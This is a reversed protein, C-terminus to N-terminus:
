PLYPKGHEFTKLRERLAAKLDPETGSEELFAIAQSTMKSADEFRSVAGYAVALTALVSANAHRTLKAAKEALEVVRPHTRRAPDNHTALLWAVNNIALVHFRNQLITSEFHELATDLEGRKAACIGLQYHAEANTEEEQLVQLLEVEAAELDNQSALIAGLALRAKTFDEQLELARRFYREAGQADSLQISIGQQYFVSAEIRGGLNRMEELPAEFDSGYDVWLDEVTGFSSAVWSSAVVHAIRFQRNEYSNGVAELRLTMLAPTPSGSNLAEAIAHAIVRETRSNRKVYGFLDKDCDPSLLLFASDTDPDSFDYNYYTGPVVFVRVEAEKANGELIDDWTSTGTRVFADWDIGLTGSEEVACVFREAGSRFHVYFGHIGLDLMQAQHFADAWDVGSEFDAQYAEVDEAKVGATQTKRLLAIREDVNLGPSLFAEVIEEPQVVEMSLPLPVPTDSVAVPGSTSGVFHFMVYVM